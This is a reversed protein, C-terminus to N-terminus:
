RQQLEKRDISITVLLSPDPVPRGARLATAQEILGAAETWVLAMLRAGGPTRIRRGTASIALQGRQYAEVSVDCHEGCMEACVRVHRSGSQALYELAYPRSVITGHLRYM